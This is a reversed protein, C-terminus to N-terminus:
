TPSRSLLASSTPRHSILILEVLHSSPLFLRVVFTAVLCICVYVYGIRVFRYYEIMGTGFGAGLPFFNLLGVIDIGTGPTWTKEFGTLTDVMVNSTRYASNLQSAAVYFLGVPPGVVFFPLVFPLATAVVTKFRSEKYQLSSILTLEWSRFTEILTNPYTFLPPRVFAGKKRIYRRILLFFTLDNWRRSSVFCSTGRASRRGASATFVSGCRSFGPLSCDSGTRRSLSATPSESPPSSRSCESQSPSRTLVVLPFALPPLLTRAAYVLACLGYITSINPIVITSDIRHVLWFRGQKLRLVLGLLITIMSSRFFSVTLLPFSPFFFPSPSLLVPTAPVPPVPPVSPPFYPRLSPPILLLFSSPATPHLSSFAVCMAFLAMLFWLQPKFGGVVSPYYVDRIVSIAKTYPNEATDVNGLVGEVWPAIWRTSDGEPILSIIASVNYGSM